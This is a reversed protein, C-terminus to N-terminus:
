CKRSKIGYVLQIIALKDTSVQVQIDASILRQRFADFKNRIIYRMHHKFQFKM